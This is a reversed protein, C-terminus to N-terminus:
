EIILKKSLIGESTELKLVYVGGSFSTLDISNSNSLDVKFQKGLVDTVTANTVELNSPLNFNFIGNSPNPFVSVSNLSNNAVGLVTGVVNFVMHVDPFNISALTAPTNIGCGTSLIYSPGTQGAANSGLYILSTTNAAYGVELIMKNGAPFTATLPVSIITGNDAVVANYTTEGLLTYGTTATSSFGAPFTATTGYLKVLVPYGGAPPTSVTQIGFQVTSVTFDSTIGSASLDFARFYRNDSSGTPPNGTGCAITGTAITQATSQTITQGNSIISGVLLLLTFTIKKM